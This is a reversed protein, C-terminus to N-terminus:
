SSRGQKLAVLSALFAAGAAVDYLQWSEREMYIPAIPNFLIATAVFVLVWGYRKEAYFVWAAYVAAVLVVWRLVQYYAYPWSALAGMLFIGAILRLVWSNKLHSSEMKM